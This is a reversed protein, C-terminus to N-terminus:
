KPWGEILLTGPIQLKHFEHTVRDVPLPQATM